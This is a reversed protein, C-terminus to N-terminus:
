LVIDVVDELIDGTCQVGVALFSHNASQKCKDGGKGGGGGAFAPMANAMLMAVMLAAVLLLQIFRKM